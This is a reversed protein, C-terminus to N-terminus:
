ATVKETHNTTADDPAADGDAAHGTLTLFVEDLSPKDLSVSDIPVSAERFRVLLDAVAEAHPVPVTIRTGEPAVSGAAGFVQQVLGLATGLDGADALGVQLSQA